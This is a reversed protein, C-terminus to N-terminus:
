GVEIAAYLSNGDHELRYGQLRQGAQAPPGAIGEGQADFLGAHCPCVYHDESAEYHVRCGLHPCRDSYGRFEVGGDAQSSVCTVVLNDGSPLEFVRSSGPSFSAAFGLFVRQTRTSRRAPLLFAVAYTTLTGFTTALSAAVAGWLWRRRSESQGEM